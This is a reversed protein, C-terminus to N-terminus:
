FRGFWRHRLMAAHRPPIGEAEFPPGSKLDRQALRTLATLPRLQRPFRQGTLHKAAGRAFELLQPVGRRGVSVLAWLAGAERLREDPKGLLRAALEFLKAGRDSVRAPDVEEELLTTWGDELMALEAGSIGRPLLQEFAAKLRPEAPVKGEDLAELRERWWALKVAGLTPQTSRAVVDGMAADILFLAEIAPRVDAPVQRLM